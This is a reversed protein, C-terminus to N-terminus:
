LKIPIAFGLFSTKNIYVVYADDGIECTDFLTDDVCLCIMDNCTVYGCRKPFLFSSTAFMSQKDEITLIDYHFNNLLIKNKQLFLIFIGSVWTFLMLVMLVVSIVSVTQSFACRMINLIVAADFAFMLLGCLAM